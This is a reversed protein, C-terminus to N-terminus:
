VLPSASASSSSVDSYSVSESSSALPESYSSSSSSSPPAWSRSGSSSMSHGSDSTIIRRAGHPNDLILKSGGKYRILAAPCTHGGAPTPHHVSTDVRGAAHKTRLVCATSCCPLHLKSCMLTALLQMAHHPYIADLSNNRRGVAGTGHAHHVVRSRSACVGGATHGERGARGKAVTGRAGSAQKVSVM